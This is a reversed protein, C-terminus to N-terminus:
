QHRRAKKERLMRKNRIVTIHFREKLDAMDESSIALVGLVAEVDGLLCKVLNVNTKV